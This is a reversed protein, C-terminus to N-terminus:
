KQTQCHMTSTDSCQFTAPGELISFSPVTPLCSPHCFLLAAMTHNRVRPELMWVLSFNDLSTFMSTPHLLRLCTISLEPDYLYWYGGSHGPWRCGRYYNWWSKWCQGYGNWHRQYQTQAESNCGFGSGNSGGLRCSFWWIPWSGLWGVVTLDTGWLRPRFDGHATGFGWATGIWQTPPVSSSYRHCYWWLNRTPQSFFSSQMRASSRPLSILQGVMGQCSGRLSRPNCLWIKLVQCILIFSM